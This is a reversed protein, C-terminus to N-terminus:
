QVNELLSSGGFLERIVARQNPSIMGPYQGPEFSAHSGSPLNLVGFIDEGARDVRECVRDM